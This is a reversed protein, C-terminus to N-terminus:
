PPVTIGPGSKIFPYKSLHTLGLYFAVYHSIEDLEERNELIFNIELALFVNKTLNMVLSVEIYTISTMLKGYCVKYFDM